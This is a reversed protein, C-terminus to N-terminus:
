GCSTQRTVCASPMCWPSHLIWFTNTRTRLDSLGTEDHTDRIRCNRVLAHWRFKDKARIEDLMNKTDPKSGWSRIIARMACFCPPCVWCVSRSNGKNLMSNRPLPPGCDFECIVLTDDEKAVTTCLESDTNTVQAPWQAGSDIDETASSDHCEVLEDNSVPQESIRSRSSSM